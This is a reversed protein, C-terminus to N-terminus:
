EIKSQHSLYKRGDKEIVHFVADNAKYNNKAGEFGERYEFSATTHELEAFAVVKKAKVFIVVNAMENYYGVLRRPLKKINGKKLVDEYYSRIAYM